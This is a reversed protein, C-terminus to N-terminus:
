QLEYGIVTYERHKLHQVPLPEQVFLETAGMASAIQQMFEIMPERNGELRLVTATMDDHTWRKGVAMLAMSIIKNAADREIIPRTGNVWAFMFGKVDLQIGLEAAASLLEKATATMEVEGKPPQVVFFSM